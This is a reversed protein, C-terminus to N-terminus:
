AGARGELVEWRELMVLLEDDIQALRAALRQAEQPESQYLKPDELRTGLTKQEAELAAIQQPLSELERADKFNLKGATAPKATNAL